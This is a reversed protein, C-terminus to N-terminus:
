RSWRAEFREKAIDDTCAIHVVLQGHPGEDHGLVQMQTQDAARLELRELSKAAIDIHSIVPHTTRNWPRPYSTLDSYKMM